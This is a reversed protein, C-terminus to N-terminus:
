PQKFWVLPEAAMDMWDSLSYDLNVRNSCIQGFCKSLMLKCKPERHSLSGSKQVEGVECQVSYWREECLQCATLMFAFIGYLMHELEASAHLHWVSITHHTIHWALSWYLSSHCASMWEEGSREQGLWLLGWSEKCGEQGCWEPHPKCKTAALFVGKQCLALYNHIWVKGVFWMRTSASLSVTREEQGYMVAM